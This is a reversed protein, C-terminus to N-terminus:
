CAHKYRKIHIHIQALPKESTNKNKTYVYKAAHITDTRKYTQMRCKSANAPMWRDRNFISLFLLAINVLQEVRPVHPNGSIVVSSTILTMAEDGAVGVRHATSTSGANNVFSAAAAASARSSARKLARINLWEKAVPLDNETCISVFM